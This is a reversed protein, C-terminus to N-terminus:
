YQLIIYIATKNNPNNKSTNTNYNCSLAFIFNLNDSIKYGVFFSCVVNGRCGKCQFNLSSQITEHNIINLDKLCSTRRPYKCFQFGYYPIKLVYM